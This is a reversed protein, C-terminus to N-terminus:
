NNEESRVWMAMHGKESGLFFGKSFEKICTIKHVDETMFGNDIIQKEEYDELIVVEGEQTTAAMREYMLWCHDTYIHGDKVVSLKKFPTFTNEQPRFTKWHGHGSTAM